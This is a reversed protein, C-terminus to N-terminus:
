PPPRPLASLVLKMLQSQRRTGTKEFIHRLHTRATTRAVGLAAAAEDLSHDAALLGILRTEGPTLGYLKVLVEGPLPQLDGVTQLFMASVANRQGGMRDRLGGTLPLVHAAFKRGDGEAFAFSLSRGDQHADVAVAATIESEVARERARIRRNDWRLADTTALFREAAANAEICTGAADFLLVPTQLLDLAAALDQSRAADREVIGHFITARRIHPALLRILAAERDGPPGVAESRTFGVTSTRTASKELIVAVFNFWNLPTLFERYFRTRRLEDPAMFREVTIPEDVDFHWGITLLPDIRAYTEAYAKMSEPPTGWHYQFSVDRVSHSLITGNSADFVGALRELTSIWHEKDLACQYVDGILSSLTENDVPAM